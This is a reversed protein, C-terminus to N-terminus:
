NTVVSVANEGTIIAQLTQNSAINVVRILDGKAGSQLAKVKTALNMLGHNLSLTVLEGRSVIQPAEIETSKIVRGAVLLRRATMGILEEEDVVMGQVFNQEKIPLTDIDSRKIIRGHNINEMLVPVHIVAHMKGKISIQKIPNDASPAALTIQFTKKNTDANIDVVSVTADHDSPLIIQRNHAPISFEYDGHIGQDYLATQIAEKIKPYEIVTADRKLVVQDTTNTPRWPVDLAIAIKLLTRANLIMDKGPQPANGLVRDENRELGYFIDGLTITDATIVNHEKIGAAHANMSTSLLMIVGIAAIIKYTFKHTKM